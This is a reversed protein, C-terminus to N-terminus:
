GAKRTSIAEDIRDLLVAPVSGCGIPNKDPQSADHSDSGGTTVCGLAEAEAVLQDFHPEAMNLPHYLEFGDVGYEVVNHILAIQAEADGALYYAVHALVLIGGAKHTAPLVEELSAFRKFIEPGEEEVAQKRAEAIAHTFADRDPVVGQRILVDRAFWQNLVPDPHTPYRAPLEQLLTQEIGSFQTELHKLYLRFTHEYVSFNREVLDRLSSSAPDIGLAVFHYSRGQWTADFEVGPLFRIGQKEAQARARPLGGLSNHDTLALATIGRAAAVDVLDEPTGRGDVSFMSHCHMELSM